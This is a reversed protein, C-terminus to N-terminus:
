VKANRLIRFKRLEEQAQEAYSENLELGLTFKAGLSEAARLSSGSGCTPDLLATTEDVLMGFFHRLMPEPKTSQHFQKATPSGYVDSVVKVIKRDGRSMLLASEYVHRPGRQPDQVIGKNDTKFWVLPKPWIRLDPIGEELRMVTETVTATDSSLWFLIHASKAIIRDANDILLDVLRWYTEESDEYSGWQEAKGQESKDMGVGYPFDCHVFNFPQGVYSQVWESFDTRLISESAPVIRSLVSAGSSDPRTKSSVAGSSTRRESRQPRANSEADSEQLAQREEGAEESEDDVDAELDALAIDALADEILRDRARNIFGYAASLGSANLVKENGNLLEGAVALHRSLTSHSINLADATQAPKWDPDQVLYIEHLRYYALALEQWHLDRRRTNEELEIIQLDLPTLDRHAIRVPVTELGAETAALYRRAGAVISFDERVIIPNYVGRMSVSMVLDSIDHDARQREDEKLFLDVLPVQRSDSLGYM